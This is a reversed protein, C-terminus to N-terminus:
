LFVVPYFFMLFLHQLFICYLVYYLLLPKVCAVCLYTNGIIFMLAVKNYLLGLWHFKLM